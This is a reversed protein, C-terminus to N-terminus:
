TPASNNLKLSDSRYWAHPNVTGTPPFDISASSVVGNVTLSLPRPPEASALSYIISIHHIGANCSSIHFTLTDGVPNQFDVFGLGWHGEHNRAVIPGNMEVPPHAGWDNGRNTEGLPRAAADHKGVCKNTCVQGTEYSYPNEGAAPTGGQTGPLSQVNGSDDNVSCFNCLESHWLYGSEEGVNTYHQWAPFDSNKVQYCKPNAREDAASDFRLM